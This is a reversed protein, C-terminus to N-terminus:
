AITPLTLHTYSVTSSTAQPSPPREGRDGSSGGREPGDSDEHSQRKHGREQTEETEQVETGYDSAPAEFLTEESGEETRNPSTRSLHPALPSLPYIDLATTNWRAISPVLWVRFTWFVIEISGTEQQVSISPRLRKSMVPFDFLLVFFETNREGMEGVM